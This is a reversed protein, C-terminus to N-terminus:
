VLHAIIQNTVQEPTQAETDIQVFGDKFFSSSRFSAINTALNSFLKNYIDFISRKHELGVEDYLNNDRGAAAQRSLCTEFSATLAVLYNPILVRERLYVDMLGDAGSALVQYVFTSLTYRDSVVIPKKTANSNRLFPVVTDQMMQNRAAYMLLLRTTEDMSSQYAADLAVGRIRQGIEGEGPERVYIANYNGTANLAEVLKKAVTTKGTGDCGEIVIFM